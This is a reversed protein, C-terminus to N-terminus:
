REDTNALKAAVMMVLLGITWVLAFKRRLGSAQFTTIVPITMGLFLTATTFRDAQVLEGSQMAYIVAV